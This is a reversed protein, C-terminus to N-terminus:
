KKQGTVATRKVRLKLKGDPGVSEADCLVFGEGTWRPNRCRQIEALKKGSTDFVVVNHMLHDGAQEKVCQFTVHNKQATAAGANICNEELVV